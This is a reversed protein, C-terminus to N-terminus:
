HVVLKIMKSVNVCSIRCCYIGNNLNDRSLSIEHDGAPYHRNVPTQVLTGDINYLDIRIIGDRPVRFAISTIDHFPNPYIALQLGTSDSYLENIRTLTAGSQELTVQQSTM